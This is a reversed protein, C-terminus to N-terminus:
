RDPANRSYDLMDRCLCDCDVMCCLHFSHLVQEPKPSWRECRMLLNWHALYFSYQMRVVMIVTTTYPVHISIVERIEQDAFILLLM